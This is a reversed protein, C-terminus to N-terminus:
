AAKIAARIEKESKFGYWCKKQNNWRMKLAKLADRVKVDPKKDFYIEFAGERTGATIKFADKKAPAKKTATAKKTTATAKKISEKKTAM